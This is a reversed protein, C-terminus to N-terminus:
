IFKNNIFEKDKREDHLKVSEMKYKQGEPTNEVLNYWAKELNDAETYFQKSSSMITEGVINIIYKKVM